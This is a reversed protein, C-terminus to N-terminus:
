RAHDTEQPHEGNSGQPAAQPRIPPAHPNAYHRGCLGYVVYTHPNTWCMCCAMEEETATPMTGDYM